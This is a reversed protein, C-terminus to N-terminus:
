PMIQLTASHRSLTVGFDPELIAAEIAYSGPTAGVPVAARFLLMETNGAPLTLETYRGLITVSTVGDPFRAGTKLEIARAPGPNSFRLSAETVRGGQCPNCDDAIVVQVRPQPGAAPIEIQADPAGDWVLLFTDEETFTPSGAAETLVLTTPAWLDAGFSETTETNRRLRVEMRSEGQIITFSAGSLYPGPSTPTARMLVALQGSGDQCAQRWIELHFQEDGAAVDFAVASAGPMTPLTPLCRSPVSAEALTAVMVFGYALLLRKM